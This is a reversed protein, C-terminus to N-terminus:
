HSKRKQHQHMEVSHKLGKLDPGADVAQYNSGRWVWLDTNDVLLDHMGLHRTKQISITGTVSDLIKEWSNGQKLYVSTSCGGSGCFGSSQLQVFLAQGSKQNSLALVAILVLPQEGNHKAFAIDKQSLRRALLDYSTGPKSVLVVPGLKVTNAVNSRTHTKVSHHGSAAHSIGVPILFGSFGLLLSLLLSKENVRKQTM